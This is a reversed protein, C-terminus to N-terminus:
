VANGELVKVARIQRVMSVVAYQRAYDTGVERVMIGDHDVRELIEFWVADDLKNFAVQMGIELKINKM